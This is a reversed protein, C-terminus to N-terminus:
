VKRLVLFRNYQAYSLVARAIGGLGVFAGTKYLRGARGKSICLFDEFCADLALGTTACLMARTSTYNTTALLRRNSDLTDRWSLGAQRENRRGLLAWMALYLPIKTLPTLPVNTHPEVITLGHPFRHIAVGGPKLVRAQEAFVPRYDFVHELTQDSFLFVISSDPFPLENKLPDVIHLRARVRGSLKPGVEGLLHSDRGWYELIDVGDACYGHEILWKTAAGSGCGFDVIRDESSLHRESMHSYARLFFMCREAMPGDRLPKSLGKEYERVAEIYKTNTTTSTSLGSNSM